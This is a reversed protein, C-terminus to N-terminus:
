VFGADNATAFPLEDKVLILNFTIFIHEGLRFFMGPLRGLCSFSSVLGSDNIKFNWM